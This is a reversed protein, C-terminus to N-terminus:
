LDLPILRITFYSTAVVLAWSFVGLMLPRMGLLRL